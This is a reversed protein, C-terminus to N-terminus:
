IEVPVAWAEAVRGPIENEVDELFYFCFIVNIEQQYDELRGMVCIELPERIAVAVESAVNLCDGGELGFNVM